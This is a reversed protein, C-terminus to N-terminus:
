HKNILTEDVERRNSLKEKNINIIRPKSVKKDELM